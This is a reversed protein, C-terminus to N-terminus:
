LILMEDFKCGPERARRVGATLVIRGVARVYAANEETVEVGMYSELWRDVRPTGDWETEVEALYDCVPNFTNRRALTMTAEYVDDIKFTVGWRRLMYLRIERRIADNLVYGLHEPWPYEVEGRMGYNQTLENYGLGWGESGILLLANRYTPHIQRTDKDYSVGKPIPGMKTVFALAGGYGDAVVIESQSTENGKLPAVVKSSSPPADEVILANYDDSTIVERPFWEDALMKGLHDLMTYGRCSNHQCFITFVPSTGEPGNVCFCGENSEDPDSHDEQFPCEITRGANAYGRDKEPCENEILDAILFREAYDRAWKGLALGGPTISKAKKAGTKTATEVVKVDRWDLLPGGMITTDHPAGELHRPFYFMQNLRAGSEDIYDRLGLADAVAFYKAKWVEEAAQLNEYDDIVFPVALPYILRNKSIPAHTILCKVGSSDRKGDVLEIAAVLEEDWKLQERAYRRMAETNIDDKKCKLCKMVADRSFESRTKGNSSSTHRVATHGFKEMKADIKEGRPGHDLDFVMIHMEEVAPKNRPGPILKGPVYALGDKSKSKPHRSCADLLAAVNRIHKSPAWSTAKAGKGVMITLPTSNQPDNPNYLNNPAINRADNYTDTTM